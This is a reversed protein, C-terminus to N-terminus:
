HRGPQNGHRLRRGGGPGGGFAHSRPHGLAPADAINVSGTVPTSTGGDTDTVTVNLSVSTGEELPTAFVEYEGLASDFAVRSPVPVGGLTVTATFDENAGGETDSDTDGPNTETVFAVVGEQGEVLPTAALTVSPPADAINVSGTVPTSTGGDTDTVTVNLSVSTGEELPTAFVEYEGLASDFAVRSPVPVGGLTVTATFDENTDETDSDTDGPNTETVFAVVGEEGEVLPTAALTVSPPADAINVSGTVPTSTGGDTDTVTVNLSVSTGEELPTAFVEYEGLASDFAVRSPVPVGGLTVTATFDENTDETDSDTDGPNTETVFAVVGEQGEVLPTAALTVSPPADAINVSGTVPTSTGGDTDTVTVNLSVSTGEELPTAFVEYEGLASDFAVRSPVPVGGLTVTATFDENTDETDSDTDGPNTETVFAVVGEQGEVLPTAALTVSPPADAINVSGTVPTSTGGDTDTVTVNLSVSTGEELPTAFVEYEGLASDFAVRSPVPVGGLTVTATFDETTDETDSDTDGPNTETVFAVVGEEGEVLPTAALTVSPPADAINVSGTVPTSTGGDTDTVTVNLSVSTGEELPTAFVEYEGLASDFAVRSPVPVGGLTVTATFDETTDETDKDTDGPNVETASIFAVVGEQGEVLGTNALSVSPLADAITVSGTVPTSTGGDTDTVTVNLSASTGEELPTAFVEYEGLASDFAVRSSVPVGGLTVTATFDENTDETDSDTDGPNTETVFAVVGEQGEVLPTAALTVSPPADAINVSGTVPTSTGGDTDTVTVNLSVSTGEELPTAFVEYEGLASDFAVRSPVPVGGLTVTATFDETTDETDSDTDGPNTETVFAVVGEQGEVLPTAALTVSPPADAINVSGTVPTSTGGDTDTVTVNLSVSTGEESPTAFVEYEGLASDFAVRSPVPVGGLTVTATFDETTDETDKDTDGPNVETASIFAVVGEQGEVLPTAALTVSPPADAINVSGTVPTSTGGDTDTVTVNLSVSTGEESPTAFVEYEGLASDFAVQSPVPVGGLTVTATFDENTDETDSDTDGPNTETVFAVVGEQGEVLPTAALTVSPPADAINVSGTVPTSTGGDTDTVTVNLSVSTGEELPTAFVEYEGLASDFAVRSPVPVGGLTVTATFDETTDETDSDTDGPNTETVFAVVGEQGEVLPTAALTVSPPADAINVSGTVSTSTGGDTDTVTVNLSVSTGEESPTAFVEYEGLASDFAVQSPVPVGGLTVTATFDENTDETDSDTDGPNTETVFAVVGEQGELLGTNALSVQPPVDSVTFSGSVTPSTTGGDVDTVSVTALFTGEEPPTILIEYDGAFPGPQALVTFPSGGNVTITAVYDEDLDESDGDSDGPNSEPSSITALVGLQGEVLGEAALSPSPPPADAVTISGNDTTTSRGVDNIMVSINYSGEKGYQHSGTVTYSGGSGSVASSTFNSSTTDGWFITGSFDSTPAALNADTFTARLTTPSVGEVGGTATLTGATLHADLVTTSGNDTTTSKGVDNIMVSINYPGDEAYQHSGTM